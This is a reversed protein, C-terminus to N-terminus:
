NKDAPTNPRQGRAPGERHWDFSYCAVKPAWSKYVGLATPVGNKMENTMRGLKAVVSDIEKLELASWTVNLIERNAAIAGLLDPWTLPESALEIARMVKPGIKPHGVNIALLIMAARYEGNKSGFFTASRGEDDARVRLLRYINVLRKALRPRDVFAHLGQLYEEEHDEFVLAADSAGPRTAAQGSTAPDGAEDTKRDAATSHDRETAAAAIQAADATPPAAQADSVSRQDDQPAPANVRSAALATEKAADEAAQKKKAAEKEEKKRRDARTEIMGGILNKFNTEGIPGLAYPIQFIKELYDQPSFEEQHGGGDQAGIYQRNLSRELWRADVGVVVNFLDFALLLHVAQLVEVVKDPHCRDLDDIYLVVREIPDRGQTAFDQLLRGLKEFDQRITSIL